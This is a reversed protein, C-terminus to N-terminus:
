FFLSITVYWFALCGIIALIWFGVKNWDTRKM